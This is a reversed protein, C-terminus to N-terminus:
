IFSEMSQDESDEQQVVADNDKRNPYIFYHQCFFLIDFVMSTFGLAFKAINFSGGGAFVDWNGTNAGDIFIQLVSLFGGTFDLFINGISWGVTSKRRYNMIAQPVYKVVTIVLKIYGLWLVGNFDHSTPLKGALYIPIIIFASIWLTIVLAIAYITPKQGRSEYMLAQIM